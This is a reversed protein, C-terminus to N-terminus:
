GATRHSKYYMQSESAFRLKQVIATWDRSFRRVHQVAPKSVAKPLPKKATQQPKAGFSFCALLMLSALCGTFAIGHGSNQTM